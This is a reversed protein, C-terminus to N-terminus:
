SSEVRLTSVPFVGSDQGGIEKVNDLLYRFWTAFFGQTVLKQHGYQNVLEYQTFRMNRQNILTLKFPPAPKLQCVPAATVWKQDVTQNLDTLKTLKSIPKVAKWAKKSPRVIDPMISDVTVSSGPILDIRLDSPRREPLVSCLEESFVEKLDQIEEPISDPAPNGVLLLSNLYATFNKPVQHYPKKLPVTTPQKHSHLTVSNTDWKFQLKSEQCWPFGLVLLFALNSLKSTPLHYSNKGVQDHLPKVLLGLQAPTGKDLRVSALGSTEFGLLTTLNQDIFNRM